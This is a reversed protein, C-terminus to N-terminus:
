QRVPRPRQKPVRSVTLIYDVGDIDTVISTLDGSIVLVESEVEHSSLPRLAAAIDRAAKVLPQTM